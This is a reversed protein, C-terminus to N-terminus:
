TGVPATWPRGAPAGGCLGGELYAAGPLPLGKLRLMRWPRAAASCWCRAWQVAQAAPRPAPAALKRAHGVGRPGCRSRSSLSPAAPAPGTGSYLSSSASPRSSGGAGVLLSPLSGREAAETEELGKRVRERGSTRCTRAGVCQGPQHPGVCGVCRGAGAVRHPSPALATAKILVKGLHARSSRKWTLTRVQAARGTGCPSGLRSCSQKVCVELSLSLGSHSGPGTRGRSEQLSRTRRCQGFHRHIGVLGPRGRVRHCGSWFGSLAFCRLGPRCVVAYAPYPLQEARGRQKVLVAKVGRGRGSLSGGALSSRAAPVLHRVLPGAGQERAVESCPFPPVACCAARGGEAGEGKLPAHQDKVLEESGESPSWAARGWCLLTLQLTGPARGARESVPPARLRVHSALGGGQVLEAGAPLQVPEASASLGAWLPVRSQRPDPRTRSLLSRPSCLLSPGKSIQREKKGKWTVSIM